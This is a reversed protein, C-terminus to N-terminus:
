PELFGIFNGHADYRAGGGQGGGYYDLGGYKNPETKTVSSLIDDLAAQGQENIAAPDGTPRPFVSGERGGHKALARGAKTLGGRDPAQGAESLASESATAATESGGSFLARVAAVVRGVAAEAALGTVAAALNRPLFWAVEHNIAPAMQGLMVFAGMQGPCTYPDNDQPPCLGFPDSYTVPDGDAFGYANLGGALGLPDEQTFRGTTPDYYRNRRYQYGSGDQMGTIVNGYWSPPGDLNGDPSPDGYASMLAGPFEVSTPDCVGTPCTGLDYQGHWNTYPVVVDGGNKVLDLPADIGLANTYGVVGEHPDSGGQDTEHATTTDVLERIEDAIQDGDWVTRTDENRCGSARDHWYCLTNGAVEDSDRTIRQWIRRGLADYRYWEDHWYERYTSPAGEHWVTDLLFHSKILQHESNYDNNIDRREQDKVETPGSGVLYPHIHLDEGVAGDPETTYHSTDAILTGPPPHLVWDLANTGGVYHYYSHIDAGGPTTATVRNGLADYTYQENNGSLFTASTLHGLTDYQATEGTHTNATIHGLADYSLTDAHLVTTGAMQVRHIMRSLADYDRTEIMSDARQALRTLEWIRGDADYQYHFVNGYPDTM